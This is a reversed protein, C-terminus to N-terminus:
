GLRRWSVSMRPVFCPAKESCPLAPHSIKGPRSCTKVRRWPGRCRSQTNDLPATYEVMVVADAGKPLMGGTPVEVAKGQSVEVRPAEGMVVEGSTELLAPLSESAGFTDRARVAFGDMTARTFQPVPESAAIDSALRRGCALELSVQEPRLPKVCDLISLVEDATKVKLFQAM